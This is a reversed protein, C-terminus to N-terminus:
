KVLYGESFDMYGTDPSAAMPMIVILVLLSIGLLENALFAPMTVIFIGLLPPFGYLALGISWTGLPWMSKM